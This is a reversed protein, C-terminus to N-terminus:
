DEFLRVADKTRLVTVEDQAEFDKDESWIVASSLSLAAALFVVDDPDRHAILKEAEKIFPKLQEDSVLDIKKLLMTLCQDYGEANMGSREIVADKHKRLEHFSMEPYYLQHELEVLLRRTMSDRLLASLLINTDIVIKM